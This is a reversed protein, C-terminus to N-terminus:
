RRIVGRMAFPPDGVYDALERVCGFLGSADVRFRFGRDEEFNASGVIDGAAHVLPLALAAVSESEHAPIGVDRRGARRGRRLAGVLKTWRPWACSVPLRRTQHALDRADLPNLPQNMQLQRLLPNQLITLSTPCLMPLPKLNLPTLLTNSPHILNNSSPHSPPLTLHDSPITTAFIVLITRKEVVKRKTPLTEANL